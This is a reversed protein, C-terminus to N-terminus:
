FQLSIEHTKYHANSNVSATSKKNEYFLISVQLNLVIGFEAHLNSSLGDFFCRSM